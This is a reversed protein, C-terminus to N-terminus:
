KVDGKRRRTWPKLAQMVRSALGERFTPVHVLPTKGNYVLGDLQRMAAQRQLFRESKGIEAALQALTAFEGLIYNPTSKRRQRRKVPVSM